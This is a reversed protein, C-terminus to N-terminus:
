NQGDEGRLLNEILIRHTYPLKNLDIDLSKAAEPLSFITYDNDGVKLISKTNLSDLSANPKTTEPM